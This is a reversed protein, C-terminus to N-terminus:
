AKETSKGRVEKAQARPPGEKGRMKEEKPSLDAPVDYSDPEIEVGDLGCGKSSKTVAVSPIETEGDLPVQLACCASCTGSSPRSVGAM